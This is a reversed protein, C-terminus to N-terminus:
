SNRPFIDVFNVKKGAKVTNKELLLETLTLQKIDQALYAKAEESTGYSEKVEDLTKGSTEAIGEYSKEMEEDSVKIDLHEILKQRILAAQIDKTTERRLVENKMAEQTFRVTDAHQMKDEGITQRLSALIETSIMSEPVPPPNQEVMKEIIRNVKVKKLYNQLMLELSERIGNKLDAITEFKEDVDQALEDDDPFEQRKVSALTIRIHKTKGALDADNFDEPYTKQIDRTDGKKMGTIEDDFKFPNRGSGLIFSFNERKSAPIEESSESLESYNVTVVDGTEATANDDKDMVIANRERITDLEREIDADTIEATEVEVELGEWQGLKVNPMVDYKVSFVFDGSLDLKPEGEVQPESYQLPVADKPFDDGKIAENVTDAIISNLADEQLAKGLKRELVSIPAKGKRFGKVHLDKSFDSVIKNYRARLDANNYTFTLRVASNELHTIEWTVAM